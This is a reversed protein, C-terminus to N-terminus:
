GAERDREMGRLVFRVLDVDEPEDIDLGRYRPIEYPLFRAGVKANPDSLLQHTSFIAFTGSDHFKQALDQTRKAMLEPMWANLRNSADIEFAREIPMAYRVVAMVPADYGGKEFIAHGARLDDSSLLVATPYILTVDDFKEGRRAYEQVVWVLVPRLPTFDDAFSPDRMFDVPFGLAEVETAIEASDTSIHIKSFLGSAKATELPRGIMPRGAMQLLAKRPVRKSGGRAPLIALSRKM